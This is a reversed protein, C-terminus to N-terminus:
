RSSEHSRLICIILAICQPMGWLHGCKANCTKKAVRWGCRKHVTKKKGDEAASRKVFSETSKHFRGSWMWLGKGRWGVNGPNLAPKCICVGQVNQIFWYFNLM